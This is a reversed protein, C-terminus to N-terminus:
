PNPIKPILPSPTYKPTVYKTFIPAKKEPIQPITADDAIKMINPAIIDESTSVGGFTIELDNRMPKGGGGKYYIHRLGTVIQNSSRILNPNGYNQHSVGYNVPSWNLGSDTSDAEGSGGVANSKRVFCVYSADHDVTVRLVNAYQNGM